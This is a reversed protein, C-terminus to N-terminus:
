RASVIQGCHVRQSRCTSFPHLRWYTLSVLASTRRSRRGSNRSHWTNGRVCRAFVGRNSLSKWRIGDRNAPRRWTAQPMMRTRLSTTVWHRTLSRKVHMRTVCLSDQVEAQRLPHAEGPRRASRDVRHFAIPRRRRDPQRFPRSGNYVPGRTCLGIDRGWFRRLRCGLRAHPHRARGPVPVPTRVERGVRGSCSRHWGRDDSTPV